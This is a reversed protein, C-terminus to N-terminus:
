TLAGPSPFIDVNTPETKEVTNAEEAEAGGPEAGSGRVEEWLKQLTDESKGIVHIIHELYDEGGAVPWDPDGHDQRGNTKGKGRRSRKKRRKPKAPELREQVMVNLNFIPIGREGARSLCDETVGIPAFSTGVFVVAAAGEFWDQAEEWRYYAHSAYQEDFFLCQPMAPEGCGPCLPLPDHALGAASRASYYPCGPTSVCKYLGSRGHVEVTRARPSGADDHLCDINQTVLRCGSHRRLIRALADHGANPAVGPGSFATGHTRDWFETWWRSPDELFKERTGWEVVHREWVGDPGRFTPVGSAVSVGAGTVFVVVPQSSDAIISALRALGSAVTDEATAM